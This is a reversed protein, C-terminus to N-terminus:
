VRWRLLLPAAHVVDVEQGLRVVDLPSLTGQRVAPPHEDRDDADDHETPPRVTVGIRHPQAVTGLPKLRLDLVGAGLEALFRFQGLSMLCQIFLQLDLALQLLRHTHGLRHAHQPKQQRLGAADRMNM